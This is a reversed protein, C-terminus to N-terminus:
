DPSMRFDGPNRKRLRGVRSGSLETLNAPSLTKKFWSSHSISPKKSPSHQQSNFARFSGTSLSALARESPPTEHSISSTMCPLLEGSSFHYTQRRRPCTHPSEHLEVPRAPDPCDTLLTDAYLSIRPFNTGFISGTRAYRRFIRPILSTGPAPIEIDAGPM